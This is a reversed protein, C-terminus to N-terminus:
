KRLVSTTSSDSTVTGAFALAEMRVMLCRSRAAAPPAGRFSEGMVVASCIACHDVVRVGMTASICSNIAFDASVPAVSSSVCARRYSPRAALAFLM